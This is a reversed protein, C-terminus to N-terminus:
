QPLHKIIHSSRLIFVM